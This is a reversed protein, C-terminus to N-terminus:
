LLVSALDRKPVHHVEAEDRWYKIDEPADKLSEIRVEEAPVGFACVLKLEYREVDIGLVDALAPKFAKLMCGGFSPTAARAALMMTQAAIGTDVETIPAAPKGPVTREAAIVVYGSPREGPEPGDWDKFYGAWALQEFVAECEDADSVVRFRLRQANAGNACLHALDVLGTLLDAPIRASEDFRRYSRCSRVLSSFGEIGHEEFARAAQEELKNNQLEEMEFVTRNLDAM